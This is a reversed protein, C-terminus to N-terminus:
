IYIIFSNIVGTSSISKPFSSLPTHLTTLYSLSQITFLAHTYSFTRIVFVLIYTVYLVMSRSFTQSSSLIPPIGTLTFSMSPGTHDLGFPKASFTSWCKMGYALKSTVFPCSPPPSSPSTETTFSMFSAYALKTSSKRPLLFLCFSLIAFSAIPYSLNMAIRVNGSFLEM